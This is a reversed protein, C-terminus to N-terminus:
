KKARARVLFDRLKQISPKKIGGFDENKYFLSPKGFPDAPKKAKPMKVSTSGVAMPNKISTTPKPPKLKDM